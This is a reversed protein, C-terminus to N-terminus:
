FADDRLQKEQKFFLFKVLAKDYDNEKIKNASIQNHIKEIKIIYDKQLNDTNAVIKKGEEELKRLEALKPQMAM